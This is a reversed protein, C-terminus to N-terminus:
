EVSENSAVNRSGGGAVFFIMDIVKARPYRHETPQGTDFDITPARNSEIASDNAEYFRRIKQLSQASLTSVGIGKKFYQDFAPICGFVGLM